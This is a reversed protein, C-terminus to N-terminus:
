LHSSDWLQRGFIIISNKDENQDKSEFFRADRSGKFGQTHFM